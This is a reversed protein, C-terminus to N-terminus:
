QGLLVLAGEQLQCMASHSTLFNRTFVYCVLAVNVAFNITPWFKLFNKMGTLESYKLTGAYNVLCKSFTTLM